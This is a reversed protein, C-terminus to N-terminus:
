SKKEKEIADAGLGNLRMAVVCIKELIVSPLKGISQIDGDSFVREGKEDIVTFAVLKARLSIFKGDAGKERIAQEWEDRMAGSMESVIVEGFLEEITVKETKLSVKSLIEERTLM